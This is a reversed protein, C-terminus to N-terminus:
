LSEAVVKQPHEQGILTEITLEIYILLTMFFGVPMIGYSWAKRIPLSTAMIKTGNLTFQYSHKLAFFLVAITSLFLLLKLAKLYIGGIRDSIITLAAHQGYRSAAPITLFTMWVMLYRALEESWPLANNLVYRFVVQLLVVFTMAAVFTLSIYKSMKLLFTNCGYLLSHISKLASM